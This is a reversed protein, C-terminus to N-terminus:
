VVQVRHNQASGMNFFLRLRTGPFIINTSNIEDCLYSVVDESCHNALHHLNVTLTNNTEDPLLDVETQYIARLLKRGADPHSM